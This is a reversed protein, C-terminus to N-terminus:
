KLSVVLPASMHMDEVLKDALTEAEQKSAFQGVRVRHWTGREGLEAPVVHALYGKNNLKM